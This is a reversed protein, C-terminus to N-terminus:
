RLLGVGDSLCVFAHGFTVCDVSYRSIMSLEKDALCQPDRRGLAPKGGIGSPNVPLHKDIKLGNPFMKKIMELVTVNAMHM